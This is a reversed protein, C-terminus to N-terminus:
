QWMEARDIYTMSVYDEPGSSGADCASRRSSTLPARAVEEARTDEDGQYNLTVIGHRAQGQTIAEQFRIRDLEADGSTVEADFTDTRGDGEFGVYANM